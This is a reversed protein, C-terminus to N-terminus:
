AQDRDLEPSFGSVAIKSAAHRLRLQDTVFQFHHSTGAGRWVNQAGPEMAGRACEDILRDGWSYTSGAFEASAVLQECLLRYQAKGEQIVSGRGRAILTTNSSTYRINARMGPGGDDRPPQPHQVAYDGYSPVRSVGSQAIQQWLDWERRPLSGVTGENICSLTAPMSTGLLAVGRWRGVSLMDNLSAAFDEVNLEADPDLHELDVLLDANGVDGSVTSLLEALYASWTTGVPPVLKRMRIRVALGHGDALAADRVLACHTESSEGVWIVPVFRLRRKRAAAYISELVTVRGKSTVVPFDPALRVIDLYFPHIGVASAAKAVWSAITSSNLPEGRHKQGVFHVLPTMREWVELSAQRLAELEGPKNQLAVVYHGSDTPLSEFPDQRILPLQVM